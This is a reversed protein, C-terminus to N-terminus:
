FGDAGDPQQGADSAAHGWSCRIVWVTAYTRPAANGKTGIVEHLRGATDFTHQINRGTLYIESKLNGALDYEYSMSYTQGTTQQSSSTGHGMADYGAYNAQSVSSITCTLRGRANAIGPTDYSYTVTPAANATGGSYSRQTVRNLGDYTYNTMTGRADTKRALSSMGDGSDSTPSDLCFFSAIQM